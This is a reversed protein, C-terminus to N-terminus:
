RTPRRFGDGSRRRRVAHLTVNQATPAWLKLTPAGGNFIPGLDGDYAYLDDLVGPIQIGTADVPDGASDAVSVAIQGKLIEPVMALDAADLKFAAYGALHPFRDTVAAPLGAPDYTLALSGDGGVVGTEDLALGGDAAITCRPLYRRASGATGPM